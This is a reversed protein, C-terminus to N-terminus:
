NRSKRTIAADKLIIFEHAYTFKTKDAMTWLFPVNFAPNMEFYETGKFVLDPVNAIGNPIVFRKELVEHQNELIVPERSGINSNSSMRLSNTKVSSYEIIFDKTNGVWRMGKLDFNMQQLIRGSNSKYLNLKIQCCVAKKAM